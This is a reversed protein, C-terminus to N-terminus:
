LWLVRVAPNGAMVYGRRGGGQMRKPKPKIELSFGVVFGQAM